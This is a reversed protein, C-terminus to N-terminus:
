EKEALLRCLAASKRVQRAVAQASLTAGSLGQIQGGIRLQPSLVAGRFQDLWRRPAQYEPPEFFALVEVFRVTADPALVVMLTEPLTRVTASEIAAYGTVQNEKKGVYFTQIPSDVKTGSAKEITRVEDETLFLTKTEVQEANPFALKLADDRTMYAGALSHAPLALSLTLILLPLLKM